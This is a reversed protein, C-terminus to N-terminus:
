RLCQFLGTCWLCSGCPEKGVQCDQEFSETQVYDCPALSCSACYPYDYRIVNKRFTRFGADNWIDLLGRESLRGFVKPQVAQEWGSAYCTYRHWLFYCPHVAGDWSLFASGEEVFPCSREDKPAMAPLSLELGSARAVQQAEEFVAAVQDQLARDLDLLKRLDFAIGRRRAESKMAEVMDIIRQEEENKAYRWLVKFYDEIAVGQSAAKQSWADFLAVAGETCRQYAAQAAHAGAYPLLHSVIAFSAGRRVAWRLADPLEHLNDRMLVFEVGVQLNQGAGTSRASALALLARDVADLDGGERVKKFTESSNADVSICIRDLGAQALSLARAKNLRLGNSQFGVTGTAPMFEKGRRIFEELHPNLLPEGVGNLILTNVRPLAPILQDFTQETLDGETLGSGRTQKVCMFCNLNCRSTTEVFLKSPSERLAPPAIPATM